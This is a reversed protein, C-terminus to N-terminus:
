PMKACTHANKACFFGGTALHAKKCRNFLEMLRDAAREVYDDFLGHDRLYFLITYRDRLPLAYRLGRVITDRDTM